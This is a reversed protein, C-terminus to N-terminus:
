SAVDRIVNFIAILVNASIFGTAWHQWKEIRGIRVSNERVATRLM